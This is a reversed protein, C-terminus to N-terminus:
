EAAIEARNRMLAARLAAPKVPKNIIVVDAADALSRVEQSRDATLLLAPLDKGFKERMLSIVQLGNEQDLHYDALVADPGEAGALAEQGSTVTEVRCGWQTLLSRMGELIRRDNDICVIRLAPMQISSGGFPRSATDVYDNAPAVPSVTVAIATGRNIASKM